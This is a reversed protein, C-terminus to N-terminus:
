AQVSQPGHGPLPPPQRSPLTSVILFLCGVGAAGSLFAIPYVAFGLEQVAADGQTILIFLAYMLSGLFMCSLWVVVVAVQMWMPNSWGKARLNAGMRRCLFRLSIIELM